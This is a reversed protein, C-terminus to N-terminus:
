ADNDGGNNTSIKQAPEANRSLFYLKATDLLALAKDTPIDRSATISLYPNKSVSFSVTDEEGLSVGLLFRRYNATICIFLFHRDYDM